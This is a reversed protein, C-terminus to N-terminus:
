GYFVRERSLRNQVVTLILIVGFLVFALASAYGRNNERFLTEFIEITFTDAYNNAEDKIVFVSGFSKFTGIISLISMFFTVPSLLPFTIHRFAAWRGAGDVRAAEYLESPIAGLGALFIVANYGAYVWINFMIVTFLALSPGQFVAPIHSPDGGFIQDYLVRIIGNSEKLWLQSEIGLLNFAQNALSEPRSSFIVVFVTATAVQPTVYPMFYVLRFMGKGLGVEYFMLYALLMGITLQAPVTGLSYMATRVLADRAEIAETGAMMITGPLESICLWGGVMLMIAFMINGGMGKGTESDKARNWFGYAIAILLAGAAISIVQPFYLLQHALREPRINNPPAEGTAFEYAIRFEELSLKQIAFAAGRYFQVQSVLYIVLGFVGIWLVTRLTGLWGYLTQRAEDPEITKRVTGIIYITGLLFTIGLAANFPSKVPVTYASRAVVDQGVTGTNFIDYNSTVTGESVTIPVVLEPAQGPLGPPLVLSGETQYNVPEFGLGRELPILIQVKQNNVLSISAETVRDADVRQYATPALIAEYVEDGIQAEVPVEEVLEADMFAVSEDPLQLETTETNGANGVETTLVLSAIRRADETDSQLEGYAYRLMLVPMLTLLMVLLTNLTYSGVNGRTQRGLLYYGSFGTIILLIPVWIVSVGSILESRYGQTVFLAVFSFIGLSAVFGPILFLLLPDEPHERQVTRARNWALYAQYAFIASLALIGVYALSGVAALYQNLGVYENTIPRGQKLSEWLGSVVPYVGFLFTALTAPFILIYALSYERFLLGRRSAAMDHGELEREKSSIVMDQDAM